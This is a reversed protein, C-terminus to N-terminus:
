RAAGAAAMPAGAPSALLLGAARLVLTAPSAHEITVDVSGPLGHQLPIRGIAADDLLLEVRVFDDRIESAVRNVRAPLTGYQAWPFGDLRLRAVQGERIRGLALAPLFDAVVVLEGLPVVTALQQGEAVYAGPQLPAVNGLRGSIPARVVHKEIDRTLRAITAHSTALDGELSTMTHRLSEITADHQSVRMQADMELRRLESSLSDRSALLKKTESAARSMDVPAVLGSGSLRRVRQEYDQAFDVAADAEQSRFTAAEAAAVASLRDSRKERERSDIERGLSAIQRPIAGVRAQEEELRLRETTADLEVLVDGANVEAGLALMTQVVKSVVLAHVTHSSQRVEVRARSSVEFVTVTDLAFWGLWGALFAASVFWAAWALRSTEAGLSRATQSFQAAM